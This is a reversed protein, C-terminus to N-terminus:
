VVIRYVQEFTETGAHALRYLTNPDTEFPHYRGTADVIGRDDFMYLSSPDNTSLFRSVVGMYRGIDSSVARNVTVVEARGGSYLLMVRTRDDRGPVWKGRRKEAVGQQRLYSRLREPAVRITKSAETLSKGTRLLKFGEELRRDYHRAQV